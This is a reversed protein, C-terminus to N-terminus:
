KRGLLKQISLKSYILVQKLLYVLALFKFKIGPFENYNRWYTIIISKTLSLQKNVPTFLGSSNASHVRYLSVPKDWFLIAKHAAARQYFYWDEAKLDEPYNGIVDFMKRNIMSTAGSISPNRIVEEMIGEETEYKRKNGSNYEAMSSQLIIKSDNDIVLADSVLVLKGRSENEELIEVRRTLTEGYLADDSAVIVIYKGKSLELLENLTACLGKNERNKYRITVTDQHENVWKTIRNNSGDTSGDNIIVIEKNTYTDSSISNLTDVVYKEHNYCPVIVSVLPYSM